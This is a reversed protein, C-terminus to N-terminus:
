SSSAARQRCRRRRTAAAPLLPPASRLRHPAIPAHPLARERLRAGGSRAAPRRVCTILVDCFGGPPITGSAPEVTIDPHSVRPEFAFDFAIPVGTTLRVTRQAADLLAVHGFDTRQPFRFSTAVPYAHLPVAVEGWEGVVRVSAFYYRPAAGPTPRFFAEFEQCLGPAVRGANKVRVSFNRGDDRSADVPHVYVRQAESAVNRVRVLTRLGGAAKVQVHPPAAARMLQLDPLTAGSAAFGTSTKVWHAGAAVAAAVAARKEADTLYANELIVKVRAGAAAAARVVGAIDAEVEALRGSKLAGINLVMDLETCGAACAEVSEAVKSAPTAYGLPFGIVTSVAVDSGALSAAATRVDCPRVCVSAVGRARALALGAAVDSDTLEPRLLSHDIM